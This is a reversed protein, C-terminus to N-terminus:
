DTLRIRWAGPELRVVLRDPLRAVLQWAASATNVAVVGRPNLAEAVPLGPGFWPITLVLGAFRDPCDAALLLGEDTWSWELQLPAPELPLVLRGSSETEPSPVSWRILGRPSEPFEVAARGTRARPQLRDLARLMAPDPRPDGALVRYMSPYNEAPLLGSLVAASQLGPAFLLSDGPLGYGMDTWYAQQVLRTLQVRRRELWRIDAPQGLGRAMQQLAQLRHHYRLYAALRRDAQADAPVVVPWDARAPWDAQAAELGRRFLPRVLATDLSYFYYDAAAELLLPHGAAAESYQELLPRALAAGSRGYTQWLVPLATLIGDSPVGDCWEYTLVTHLDDVQQEATRAMRSSDASVWEGEQALPPLWPRYQIKQLTTGPPLQLWTTGGALPRPFTIQQPGAPVLVSQGGPQLRAMGGGAPLVVGAVLLQGETEPLDIRLPEPGMRRPLEPAAPLPQPKGYQRLPFPHPVLTGWPLAPPSGRQTVRAWRATTAADAVQFSELRAGQWLWSSAPPGAVYVSPSSRGFSLRPQYELILYLRNLGPQLVPAIDLEDTYTSLLFPSCSHGGDAVLLSDNLFLWYRGTAGIQLPYRDPIPDATWTHSFAYLAGAEPQTGVERAQIWQGPQALAPCLTLLLSYLGFIM